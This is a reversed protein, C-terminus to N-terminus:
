LQDQGGLEKRYSALNQVNGHVPRVGAYGLFWKEKKLLWEFRDLNDVTNILGVRNDRLGRLFTAGPPFTIGHAVAYERIDRGTPVEGAIRPSVYWQRVMLKVSSNYATGSQTKRNADDCVACSCMIFLSLIPVVGKLLFASVCCGSQTNILADKVCSTDQSKDPGSELYGLNKRAEKANV